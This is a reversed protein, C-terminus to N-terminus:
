PPPPYDLYKPPVHEALWVGNDSLYFPLGEAHMAEARVTLIMPRGRRRGAVRRATREDVSLHVHTRSGRRLGEVRIRELFRDVTGHYLTQPPERAALGLDIAVSHGQNARIRRGDESLAFRRKDSTMVVHNLEDASLLEGHAALGELVRGVEAWGAADLRLGLLDPSHRLGFSLLKSVRVARKADV